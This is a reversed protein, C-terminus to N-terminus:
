MCYKGLSTSYWIFVMYFGMKHSIGRVYGKCLLITNKRKQQTTMPRVNTQQDFMM